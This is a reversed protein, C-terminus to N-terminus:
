GTLACCEYHQPRHNSDVWLWWMWGRSDAPNKTGARLARLPEFPTCVAGTVTGTVSEPPVSRFPGASIVRVRMRERMVGASTEVDREASRAATAQRRQAIGPSDTP